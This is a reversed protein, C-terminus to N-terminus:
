VKLNKDQFKLRIMSDALFQLETSDLKGKIAEIDEKAIEESFKKDLPSSCLIYFHKSWYNIFKKTQEQM